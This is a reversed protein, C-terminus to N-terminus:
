QAFRAQVTKLVRSGQDRVHAANLTWAVAGYVVAGVAAKAFLELAGGWAPVLLVAGAMAATAVGCRALELWPVPLAIARRGLTWSALIGLGYSLATAM